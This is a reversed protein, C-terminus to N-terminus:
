TIPISFSSPHDNMKNIHQLIEIHYAHFKRGGGEGREREQDRQLHSDLSDERHMVSYM